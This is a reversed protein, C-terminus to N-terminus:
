LDFPLLWFPVNVRSRPEDRFPSCLPILWFSPAASLMSTFINKTTESKEKQLKNWDQIRLIKIQKQTTSLWLKKM